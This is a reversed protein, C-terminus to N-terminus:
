SETQQTGVLGVISHCVKSIICYYICLRTDLSCMAGGECTGVGHLAAHRFVLSYQTYAISNCVSGLSAHM